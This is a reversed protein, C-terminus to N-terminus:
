FGSRIVSQPTVVGPEAGPQQNLLKGNSDFYRITMTRQGYKGGFELTAFNRQGVRDMEGPFIDYRYPNASAETGAWPGASLPSSTLEYFTYPRGEIGAKGAQHPDGGGTYVFRSVESFHVDGTLFVVNRVDAHVLRDILYQFEDPYNRYGDRSAPPFVQNGIAVLHFSVPYSPARGTKSQGEAYQISEVLWDVQAKGLLQAGEGYPTPDVGTAMRYTRNDLLYINVDGWNYFTFIGPLEPLGASPNGHFLQFAATTAAKNWFDRGADNPGYDHDDWTAIQVTNALFARLHPLSRDHTWRQYLGTRSTWDPERLYINDGLWVFVDPAQEYLSEFVQYDAGYPRGSRDYQGEPQNIYACSGFGITFNPPVHGGPRFRWVPPTQFRTPIAGARAYGERFQPEVREGNIWVEYQYRTGPRVQDALCKAVYATEKATMVPDSWYATAVDDEVHYRIRVEAPATTQVWILVETMQAYGIMPGSQLTAAAGSGPLLCLVALIRWGRVCQLVTAKM